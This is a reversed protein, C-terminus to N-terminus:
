SFQNEDRFKLEVRRWTAWGRKVKRISVLVFLIPAFKCRSKNVFLTFQEDIAISADMADM